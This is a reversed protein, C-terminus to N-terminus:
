QPLPATRISFKKIYQANALIVIPDTLPQTRLDFMKPNAPTKCVNYISLKLM